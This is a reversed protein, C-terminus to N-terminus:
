LESPTPTSFAKLSPCHSDLHTPHHSSASRREVPKSPAPHCAPSARLSKWLSPLNNSTWPILKLYLLLRPFSLCVLVLSAFGAGVHLLQSVPPSPVDTHPKFIELRIALFWSWTLPASSSIIPRSPASIFSTWSGPPFKCGSVEITVSHCVLLSWQNTTQKLQHEGSLSEAAKPLHVTFTSCAPRAFYFLM